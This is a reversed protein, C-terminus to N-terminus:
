VTLVSIRIFEVKPSLSLLCLEMQLTRLARDVFYPEVSITCIVAAWLTYLETRSYALLPPTLGFCQNVSQSFANLLALARLIVSISPMRTTISNKIARWRFSTSIYAISCSLLRYLLSSSPSGIRINLYYPYTNLRIIKSFWFVL